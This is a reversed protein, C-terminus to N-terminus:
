FILEREFTVGLRLCSRNEGLLFCRLFVLDVEKRFVTWRRLILADAVDRRTLLRLVTSYILGTWVDGVFQLTRSCEILNEFIGMKLSGKRAFLM